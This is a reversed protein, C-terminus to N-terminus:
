LGFQQMIISISGLLMIAGLLLFVFAPGIDGMRPLAPGARQPAVEYRQGRWYTVRSSSPAGGSRKWTQWGVSLLYGGGGGLVAATVFWPLSNASALVVFVAIVGIWRWDFRYRNM